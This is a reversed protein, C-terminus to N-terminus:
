KHNVTIMHYITKQLLLLLSFFAISQMFYACLCVNQSPILLLFKYMEFILFTSASPKCWVKIQHSFFWHFFFFYFSFNCHNHCVILWQPAFDRFVFLHPSHSPYRIILKKGNYQRPMFVTLKNQHPSIRPSIRNEERKTVKVIM